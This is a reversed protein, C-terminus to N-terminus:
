YVAGAASLLDLIKENVYPSWQNKSYWICVGTPRAPSVPCGDTYSVGTDGTSNVGNIYWKGNWYEFVPGGSSGGTMYCGWGVTYWAGIGVSPDDAYKAYEGVNSYCHYPLCYDPSCAPQLGNAGDTHEKGFVGEGPYGITYKPGGNSNYLIPFSGTTDGIYLDNNAAPQMVILAYDASLDHDVWWKNFAWAGQVSYWVPAYYSSGVLGSRFAFGWHWYGFHVCHGATMLLNRAVVTASCFGASTADVNCSGDGAISSCDFMYLRGVAPSVQFLHGAEGIVYAPSTPLRPTRITLPLTASADMSARSAAKIQEVARVAGAATVTGGPSSMAARDAGSVPAKLSKGDAVQPRAMTDEPATGAKAFWGVVDFIVHVSGAQNYARVKGDGGVKVVVLNPITQGAAFNLNSTTPRSVGTPYITLYSGKTPKTVTVNMVVAAVGTNPAGGVGTVDVTIVQGPGVAGSHGVDIRTDLIRAPKLPTIQGGQDADGTRYWGVVDFIVDVAGSQNYARVKGDSGVKAIVLNPITQGASFNLNSTTPRTVGTPYITLFSGKTPRTATVNMVVAAVNTAPVGGVGTVDVSIAQGAGVAGAHGLDIRTDLIRAPSLPHLLTAPVGGEEPDAGGYWGVADFIVHVKGAQNYVRVKGDTGVKAVVLNPITQGAKFNLNSTTPRSVGTPYITLFSGATPNTATVNVVVAAVGSNPVGGVGTVDVTIVQAAGVAGTHGLNIRTDLIRAPSLPTYEGLGNPIPPAPHTEGSPPFYPDASVPAAAAIGLWLAVIPALIRRSTSRRHRTM